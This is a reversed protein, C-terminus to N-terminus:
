SHKLYILATSSFVAIMSFLVSIRFDAPTQRRLARFAFYGIAVALMGVLVHLGASQILAKSTELRYLNLAGMALAAVTGVIFWSRQRGSLQTEM